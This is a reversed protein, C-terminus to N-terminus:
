RTRAAVPRFRALAPNGPQLQYAWDFIVLPDGNQDFGLLEPRVAAYRLAGDDGPVRLVYTIQPELFLDQVVYGSTPAFDLAVCSADAGPGCRLATTEYGSPLVSVGAGPVLWWGDADTEVRFHRFPDDGDVVPDFGEDEQFVFGSLGPVAFYDYLFEGHFDPRPTGTAVVSGQSEHGFEDVSAVFYDYSLGNQALQDLFGESDTEGLLFADGDFLLYVRYFSFDDAVLAAEDWRIYNAGDLAVVEVGGPVPPPTPFPVTIRIADVSATEAGDFGVAAVYYDYTVGAEINVDTYSCLGASCNTVEAVLLYDAVGDPRAYVRFSEGDWRPGLEWTVVVSRDFYRVDLARPADPAEVPAVIEASDGCAALGVLGVALGPMWRRM